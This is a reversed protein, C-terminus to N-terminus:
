AVGVNIATSVLASWQDRDQVLGIWDRGDWGIGGLCMKINNVWRRKDSEWWYGMHMARRGNTSCARGM